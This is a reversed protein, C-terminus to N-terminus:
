PSDHDLSSQAAVLRMLEPTVLQNCALPLPVELGNFFVRPKHQQVFDMSRVCFLALNPALGQHQAEKLDSIVWGEKGAIMSFIQFCKACTQPSTFNVVALKKWPRPGRISTVM